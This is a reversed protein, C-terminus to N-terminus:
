ETELGLKRYASTLLDGFDTPYREALAQLAENRADAYLRLRAAAAAELVAQPDKFEDM